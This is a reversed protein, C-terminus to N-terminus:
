CTGVGRSRRLTSGSSRCIRAMGFGDEESVYICYRSACSEGSFELFRVRMDSEDQCSGFPLLKDMAPCDDGFPSELDVGEAQAGIGSIAARGLSM